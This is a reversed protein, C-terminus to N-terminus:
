GDWPNILDVGSDEFDYINRTAVAMGNARAIAGILMDFADIMRGSRRRAAVAEAYHRAAAMDFVLIRGDFLTIIRAVGDRVVRKRAGDPMIAVGSLLEAATVTTTFMLDGPQDALWDFVAQSRQPAPKVMESLVNTDLVIV